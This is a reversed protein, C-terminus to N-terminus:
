LREYNRTKKLKGKIDFILSNQNKLKSKIIEESDYFEDHPAAIIIVDFRHKSKKLNQFNINKSGDVKLNNIYPDSHFTVISKDKFLKVLEFVKSNRLDNCNEKFAM